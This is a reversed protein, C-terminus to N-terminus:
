DNRRFGSDLTKLIIQVGRKRIELFIGGVKNISRNLVQGRM